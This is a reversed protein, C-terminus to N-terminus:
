EVSGKKKLTQRFEKSNYAKDAVLKKPRQAPRGPGPTKVSFKEVMEAAQTIDHDQGPTLRLDLPAGAGDCRLHVKTTWGGKSKGIAEQEKTQEESRGRRAAGASHQHARIITSDLMHLSWDLHGCAQAQARIVEFVQDWRGDQTWRYFTSAVSRWSGYQPPLDRWPAGTRLIWFIGNITQHLDKYHRGTTKRPLYPELKEWIDQPLDRTEM